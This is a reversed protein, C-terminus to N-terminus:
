LGLSTEVQGQTATPSALFADQVRTGRDHDRENIWRQLLRVFAAQVFADSTLGLKAAGFTIAADQRANVTSLTYQAM